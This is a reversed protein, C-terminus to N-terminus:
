RYDFDIAYNYYYSIVSNLQTGDTSLRYIYNYLAFLLSPPEIDTLCIYLYNCTYALIFWTSSVGVKVIHGIMLWYLDMLAHATTDWHLHLVLCVCTVADVMTM